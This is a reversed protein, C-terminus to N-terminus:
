PLSSHCWSLLRCHRHHGHILPHLCQFSVSRQCHSLRSHQDRSRLRDRNQRRRYDMESTEEETQEGRGVTEKVVRKILEQEDALTWEKGHPGRIASSFSLPKGAGDLNLDAPAPSYTLFHKKYMQHCKRVNESM